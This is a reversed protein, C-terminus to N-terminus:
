EKQTQRMQAQMVTGEVSVDQEARRVEKMADRFWKKAFKWNRDAPNAKIHKEWKQRAKMVIGSKAVHDVLQQVMENESIPTATDEM